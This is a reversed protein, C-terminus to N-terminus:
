RGGNWGLRDAMYGLATNDAEAEEAPTIVKGSVQGKARKVEVIQIEATRVQKLSLDFVLADGVNADVPVNLSEIVMDKYTALSTEVGLLTGDNRLKVLENFVAVVRDFIQSFTLVKAALFTGGQIQTMVSVQPIQTPSAIPNAIPIVRVRPPINVQVNENILTSGDTHDEPLFHPQNSVVGAITLRIPDPRVHDTLAAGREVPHDTVTNVYSHTEQTTADIRISYTQGSVQWTLLTSM